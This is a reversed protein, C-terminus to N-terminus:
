NESDVIRFEVRRNLMHSIARNNRNLREVFSPSLIDGEKLFRYDTSLNKDIKLPKTNGYGKTTINKKPVGNKILYAM